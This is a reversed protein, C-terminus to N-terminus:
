AAFKSIPRELDLESVVSYYMDSITAFLGLYELSSKLQCPNALFDQIFVIESIKMHVFFPNRLIDGFLTRIIDIVSYGDAYKLVQAARELIKRVYFLISTDISDIHWRHGPNIHYGKLRRLSIISKCYADYNRFRGAFTTTDIDLIPVQFINRLLIDGTVASKEHIYVMDSQSHGPCSMWEIGLKSPVDSEEVIEYHKPISVNQYELETKEQIHRTIKEDCGLESLLHNLHDLCEKRRQLRIVENRPFFVRADSNETIKTALGYHDIHCHTIFLYKLRSVDIQSKLSDFAETTPPGADFLVLEGNIETSYCHVEGIIYPTKITHQQM